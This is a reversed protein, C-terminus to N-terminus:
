QKTSKLLGLFSKVANSPNAQSKWFEEVNSLGTSLVISWAASGSENNIERHKKSCFQIFKLDDKFFDVKMKKLESSLEPTYTEAFVRSFLELLKLASEQENFSQARKLLSTLFEFLQNRQFPRISNVVLLDSLQESMSSLHPAILQLDWNSWTFVFSRFVRFRSEEVSVSFKVLEAFKSKINSEDIKLSRCVKILYWVCQAARPLVAAHSIMKEETCIREIISGILADANKADVETPNRSPRGFAEAFFSELKAFFQKQEASSSSGNGPLNIFIVEILAEISSIRVAVPLDGSKFAQNVLELVKFKFQVMSRKSEQTRAKSSSGSSAKRQKERFIEALKDDFAMMQDDDVDSLESDSYANSQSSKMANDIAEVTSVDNGDEEVDESEEEGSINGDVEEFLEGKDSDVTKLIQFLVSLSESSLFPIIFRFIDDCMKRTLQSAKSLFTMLIDVLVPMVDELSTQSKGKKSSKSKSFHSELCESLEACVPIADIPDLFLLIALYNQLSVVAKSFREPEIKHKKLLKEITKINALADSTPEDIKVSFSASKSGSAADLFMKAVREIWDIEPFRKSDTLENLLAFFRGKVIELLEEKMEASETAIKAMISILHNIWESSSELKVLKENKVLGVLKDFPAQFIALSQNQSDFDVCIDKAINDILVIVNASTLCLYLKAVKEEDGALEDLLNKGAVGSPLKSLNLILDMAIESFYEDGSDSARDILDRFFKIVASNFAAVEKGAMISSKTNLTGLAGKIMRLVVPTFIFGISGSKRMEVLRKLLNLGTWRKILGTSNLFMSEIVKKLFDDTTFCGEKDLSALVLGWITHLRNEFCPTEKLINMLPEENARSLLNKLDSFESLVVPFEKENAEKKELVLGFRSISLIAFALTETMLASSSALKKLTYYSLESDDAACTIVEVASERLFSKKKGVSVLADIAAQKSPVSLSSGLNTRFLAALAFIRAVYLLREERSKVTGGLSEPSTLKMSWTFIVEADLVDSFSHYVALLALMFGLRSSNRSSGLGKILRKVTYTLDSCCKSALAGSDYLSLIKEPKSVEAFPVFSAQSTKIHEVLGSVAELRVSKNLDALKWFFQLLPNSAHSVASPVILDREKLNGSELDASEAESIESILEEDADDQEESDDLFEEESDDIFEEDEESGLEEGDSDEQFDDSDAEEDSDKEFAEEDSDVESWDMEADDSDQFFAEDASESGSIVMKQSKKSLKRVSATKKNNQSQKAITKHASKNGLSKTTM